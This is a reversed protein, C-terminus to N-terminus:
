ITYDVCTRLEIYPKIIQVCKIHEPNASYAQLAPYDPCLATLVIHANSQDPGDNIGVEVSDLGDIKAPLAEIAQKFSLALDRRLNEDGKLRFMVIHKVM